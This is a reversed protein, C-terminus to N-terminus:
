VSPSAHTQVSDLVSSLARLESEIKDKEAILDMLSKQDNAGADYTRNFAVSPTHIDDM